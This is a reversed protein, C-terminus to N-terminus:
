DTWGEQPNPTAFKNREKRSLEKKLPVPTKRTKRAEADSINNGKKYKSRREKDELM